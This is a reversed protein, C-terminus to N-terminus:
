DNCLLSPEKQASATGSGTSPGSGMVTFNYGHETLPVVGMAEMDCKLKACKELWYEQKSMQTFAIGLSERCVGNKLDDIYRRLLMKSKESTVFLSLTFPILIDEEDEDLNSYM